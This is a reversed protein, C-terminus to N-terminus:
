ELEEPLLFTLLILLLYLASNTDLSICDFSLILSKSVVVQEFCGCKENCCLSKSKNLQVFDSVIVLHSYVTGTAISLNMNTSSVAIIRLQQLQYFEGTSPPPGRWVLGWMHPKTMHFNRWCAKWYIISLRKNGVIIKKEEQKWNEAWPVSNGGLFLAMSQFFTSFRRYAVVWLDLQQYKSM